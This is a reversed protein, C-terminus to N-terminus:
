GRSRARRGSCARSSTRAAPTPSSASGSSARCSRPTTPPSASLRVRLRAVPRRRRGCRQDGRDRAERARPDRPREPPLDGRPARRRRARAGQVRELDQGACFGKGAGTLVVARIEDAAAEELAAHLAAHMGTTLANYSDPRNLTITLVAGDRSTEVDAMARVRDDAPHQPIRVRVLREGTGHIARAQAVQGIAHAAFRRARDLWREDGTRRFLTLFAYGNGATGHCLGAGKASPGARWTLEGRGARPGRRSRRRSSTIMGPTACGRSRRGRPRGRGRRSRRRPRAAVAETAVGSRCVCARRGRVGASRVPDIAPKWTM